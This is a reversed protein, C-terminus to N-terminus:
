LYLFSRLLLMAHGTIEIRDEKSFKINISSTIAVLSFWVPNINSTTSAKEQILIVLNPKM